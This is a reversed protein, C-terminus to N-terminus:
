VGIGTVNCSAPRRVLPRQCWGGAGWTFARADVLRPTPGHVALVWHELGPHLPAGHATTAAARDAASFCAEGDPHSHVLAVLVFAGAAAEKWIALQELPDFEFARAAEAAVNRVAVFRSAGCPDRVVM